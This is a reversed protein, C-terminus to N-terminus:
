ERQRKQSNIFQLRGQGETLPKSNLINKMIITALLKYIFFTLIKRLPM